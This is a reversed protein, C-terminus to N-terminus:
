LGIVTYVFLISMTSLLGLSFIGGLPTTFKSQKNITLSIPYGFFDLSSLTNKINM